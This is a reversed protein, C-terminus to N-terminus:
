LPHSQGSANWGRYGGEQEDLRDKDGKRGKTNQETQYIVFTTTVFWDAFAVRAKPALGM